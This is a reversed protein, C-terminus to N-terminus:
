PAARLYAKVQSPPQVADLIPLEKSAAEYLSISFSIIWLCDGLRQVRFAYFASEIWGAGHIPYSQRL